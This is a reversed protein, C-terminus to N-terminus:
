KLGTKNSEFKGHQIQWKSVHICRTQMASGCPWVSFAEATHFKKLNTMLSRDIRYVLNPNARWLCKITKHLHQQPLEAFLVCTHQELLFPFLITIFFV